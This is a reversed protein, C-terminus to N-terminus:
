YQNNISLYHTNSSKYSAHRLYGHKMERTIQLLYNTYMIVCVCVSMCLYMCKLLGDDENVHDYKSLRSVTIVWRTSGIYYYKQAKKVKEFTVLLMQICMYEYM